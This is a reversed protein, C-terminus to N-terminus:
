TSTAAIDADPGYTMSKAAGKKGMRLTLDQGNRSGMLMRYSDLVLWGMSLKRGLTKLYGKAYGLGRQEEDPTMRRVSQV